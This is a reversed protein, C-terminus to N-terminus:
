HAGEGDEADRVVPQVKRDVQQQQEQHDHIERQDPPGVRVGLAPDFVGHDHGAGGRRRQEREQARDDVQDHARGLVELVHALALQLDGGGLRAQGADLVLGAGVAVVLDLLREQDAGAAHVAELLRAGGAALRQVRAPLDAGVALGLHAGGGLVLGALAARAALPGRGGRALRRGLDRAGLRRRAPGGLLTRRALVALGLRAALAFGCRLRLTLGAGRGLARRVALLLGWRSRGM